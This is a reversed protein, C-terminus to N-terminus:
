RIWRGIRRRRLPSVDAAPIRGMVHANRRMASSAIERAPTTELLKSVPSIGHVCGDFLEDQKQLRPSTGAESRFLKKRFLLNVVNDNINQVIRTSTFFQEFKSKAAYRYYRLAFFVYEALFEFVYRFKDTKFARAM